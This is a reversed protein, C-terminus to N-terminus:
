IGLVPLIPQRIMVLVHCFQRKSPCWQTVVRVMVSELNVWGPDLREGLNELSCQCFRSCVCLLLLLLVCYM